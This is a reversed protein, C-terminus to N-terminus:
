GLYYCSLPQRAGLRKSPPPAVIPEGTVAIGAPAKDTPDDEIGKGEDPDLGANTFAATLDNLLAGWQAEDWQYDRQARAPEFQGLAFLQRITLSAASIM